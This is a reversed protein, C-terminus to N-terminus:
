AKEMEVHKRISIRSKLAMKSIHESFTDVKKKCMM